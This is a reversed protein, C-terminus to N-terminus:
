WSARARTPGRRSQRRSRGCRAAPRGGSWASWACWTRRSACGRVRCRRRDSRGGSSPGALLVHPLCAGIGTHRYGALGRARQGASVRPDELALDNGGLGGLVACDHVDELLVAGPLARAQERLLGFDADAHHAAVGVVAKVVGEPRAADRPGPLVAADRHATAAQGTGLRVGGAAAHDEGLGVAQRAKHGVAVLVHQDRLNAGHAHLAQAGDHVAREHVRESRVALLDVGDVLSVVSGRADLLGAATCPSTPRGARAM